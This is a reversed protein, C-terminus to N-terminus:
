SAVKRGRNVNSELGMRRRMAAVWPRRVGLEAAIRRDVWGAAHMARLKAEWGDCPVKLRSTPKHAPLGLSLRYKQVAERSAGLRKAIQGDSLGQKYLPLLGARWAPPQRPVRHPSPAAQPEARLSTRIAAPNTQREREEALRRDVAALFRPDANPRDTLNM